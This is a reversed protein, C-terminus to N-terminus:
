ICNAEIPSDSNTGYSRKFLSRKDSYGKETIVMDQGKRGFYRVDPRM